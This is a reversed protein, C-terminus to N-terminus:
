EAKAYDICSLIFGCISAVFLAWMFNQVLPMEGVTRAQLFVGAVGIINMNLRFRLSERTVIPKKTIPKDVTITTM